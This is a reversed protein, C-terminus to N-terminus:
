FWLPTGEEARNLTTVFNNWSNMYNQFTSNVASRSQGIEALLEDIQRDLETPQRVQPATYFSKWYNEM